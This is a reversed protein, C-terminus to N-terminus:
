LYFLTLVLVIVSGHVFFFFKSIDEKRLPAALKPTQAFKEPHVVSRLGLANYYRTVIKGGAKEIAEIAKQSARSVEITIPV